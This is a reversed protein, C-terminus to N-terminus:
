DCTIESESELLFGLGCVIVSLFCSIRDLSSWNWVLWGRILWAYMVCYDVAVVYIKVSGYIFIM